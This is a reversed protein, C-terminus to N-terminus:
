NYLLTGLFETVVTNFAAPREVNSLHGAGKLVELRSGVMGEQIRRADKLPTVVDEDGVIVLTPVDITSLTSTSDPRAILAETAGIIGNVSAQAIMRHMADYIDPRKDRTTRGVLGAIQMNAVATAGKEEAAEILARRREIVDITDAVARTDALVFARVRQRHRRWLAFAIYGGMSLGAIVAREIGLTDLVGAVDDAYQDVTHPPMGGGSGGFGRMDITICRFEGVLATVQPEWMTRNLPFGHLFVVPFGSGIDDFAIETDGVLAIVRAGAVPSAVHAVGRSRSSGPRTSEGRRVRDVSRRRAHEIRAKSSGAQHHLQHSPRRALGLSDRSGRRAAVAGFLRHRHSARGLVRAAQGLAPHRDAARAVGVSGARSFQADDCSQSARAHRLRDSLYSVHNGPAKDDHRESSDPTSPSGFCRHAARRWSSRTHSRRRATPAM